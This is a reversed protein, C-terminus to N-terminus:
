EQLRVAIQTVPRKQDVLLRLYKPDGGPIGQKDVYKM